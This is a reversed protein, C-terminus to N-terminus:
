HIKRQAVPKGKKMAHNRKTETRFFSLFALILFASFVLAAVAGAFSVTLLFDYLGHLLCAALLGELLITYEANEHLVVGLSYGWFVSYSAHGLNGLLLRILTAQPGFELMYLVNEGAAFGLAASVALMMGGSSDMFDRRRLAFLFVAAFKALEEIPGVGLMYFLLSPLVGQKEGLLERNFFFEAFGCLPGSFLGAAFVIFITSKSMKKGLSFIFLIFISAAFFLFAAPM